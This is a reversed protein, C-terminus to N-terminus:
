LDVDGKLLERGEMNGVFNIRPENKLMQYVEKRLEDGKEEEVGVNLLAVRPSKVGFVKEMYLSGMIAFQYLQTATCDVTAGSDCIGVIVGEKMTPLLPCLTPRVVGPVRGVRLTAAAVIAGTSGISVLGALTDDERLLRIGTMLSSDKKKRVAETPKENCGIVDPAHVISIRDSSFQQRALEDKIQQEDGVLVLELDKFRALADISGEINVRPSEDGGFCDIVIRIM